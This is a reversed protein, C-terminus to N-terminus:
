GTAKSVMGWDEMRGVLRRTGKEDSGGPGIAVTTEVIGREKVGRGERGNRGEGLVVLMSVEMSSLGVVVNISDGTRIVDM